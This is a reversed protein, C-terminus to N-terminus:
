HNDPVYPPIGRKAHEIFDLFETVLPDPDLQERCRRVATQNTADAEFFLKFAHKLPKIHDRYGARRLGVINLSGVARPTYCTCFPPFDHGVGSLGSFMALRGVTIFQHLTANGGVFVRDAMRVHGALLAGNALVIDSALQCDHGVHSNAMLTNRDGLSTPTDPATARHVTVGERFTNDDGIRTGPGATDPDFSLDQPAFGLCAGPYLTNRHGLTLPGQLYVAAVLRCGQGLTIPGLRTDLVCGPGIDVGDALRVGPGLIATPHISPM